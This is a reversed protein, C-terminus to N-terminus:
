KNFYKPKQRNDRFSVIRITNANEAITYFMSFNRLILIRRIGNYDTKEGLLINQKLSNEKAIIEDVIKKPYSTSHNRNKWYLLINKLAATAKQSWIIEFM